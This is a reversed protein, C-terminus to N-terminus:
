FLLKTTLCFSRYLDEELRKQFSEVYSGVSPASTSVRSHDEELARYFKEMSIDIMDRYSEEGLVLLFPIISIDYKEAFEKPICATTGTVVSVKKM